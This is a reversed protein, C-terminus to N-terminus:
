DLVHNIAHLLLNKTFPKKICPNKIGKLFKTITPSSTDDTTFIIRDALKPDTKILYNYLDIGNINIMNLNSIVIDFKDEKKEFLDFAARGGLAKTVQNDKQFIRDLITLLSPDDSVVLIKKGVAMKSEQLKLNPNESTVHIPLLISFTSGKGLCSKVSIEGGLNHIIESSISLGLGTGVGIPKTTFFPNFIKSLNEPSIGHGTDTIDIFISNSKIYTKVQIINKSFDDGEMAQVSNIILNLFVQHLKSTNLLLLPIDTTFDKELTAVHKFQPYAMNIATSLVEHIDVLTLDDTDVRAFGKLDNIIKRIREVGQISEDIIDNLKLMFTNQKIYDQSLTKLQEEMYKLNTLVFTMPNNIEHMIGATLTGVTALKSTLITQSRLQNRETNDNIIGLIFIEEENEIYSASYEVDRITGNAQQIYTQNPGIIKELLLKQMQINEYNREPSYIFNRYDKGIIQDHSYGFIKEAHSNLGSIVGNLDLIFIGCTANEMISRYRQEAAFIKLNLSHKYLSLEVANRLDSTEFPKTIYGYPASEKARNLTSEDNFATLFIIPIQFHSSIYKAAQTGDMEGKLNIDMLILNPKLKKALSIAEKGSNALAPVIYGLEELRSKIDMATIGEDEVVLIKFKEMTDGEEDIYYCFGACKNNM